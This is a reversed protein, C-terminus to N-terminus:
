LLKAMPVKVMVRLRMSLLTLLGSDGEVMVKRVDGKTPAVCHIIGNGQKVWERVTEVGAKTKGWGRGALCVWTNWQTKTLGKEVLRPDKNDTPLLQTDRAWFSWDHQLEEAKQPGLETLLKKVEEDPLERLVDATIRTKTM